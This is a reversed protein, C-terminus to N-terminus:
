QANGAAKRVASPIVILAAQPKACSQIALEQSLKEDGARKAVASPSDGQDNCLDKMAGAALLTRVVDRSPLRAAMYLPTVGAATLVNVRAGKALLLKVVDNKGTAAAYHLPTWGGIRNITAGRDILENVLDMKGKYAALMLATEGVDSAMDINIKPSALLAKVVSWYELRIARVLAPDQGDILVNPDYGERLMKSVVEPRNREVAGIFWSAKEEPGASAAASSAQTTTAAAASETAASKEESTSACGSILLVAAAAAASLSLFRTM